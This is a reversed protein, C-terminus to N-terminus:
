DLPEAGDNAGLLRDLWLGLYHRALAATLGATLAAAPSVGVGPVFRATVVLALGLFVGGVFAEILHIRRLDLGTRKLLALVGGELVLDFLTASALSAPVVLWLLGTLGSVDMAGPFLFDIALLTTGSGVAAVLTWAVVFAAMLGPASLLLVLGSSVLGVVIAVVAAIGMVYELVVM